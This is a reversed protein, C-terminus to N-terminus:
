KETKVVTAKTYRGHSDAEWLFIANGGYKCVEERVFDRVYSATKLNMSPCDFPSCGNSVDIDIVGVEDFEKKPRTTYIRIDCLKDNSEFKKDGTETLNMTIFPSACGSIFIILLTLLLTNLPKIM